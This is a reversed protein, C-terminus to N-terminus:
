AEEREEEIVKGAIYKCNRCLSDPNYASCKETYKEGDTAGCYAYCIDGNHKVKRWINEM